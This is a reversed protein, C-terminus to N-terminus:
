RGTCQADGSRLRHPDAECTHEILTDGCLIENQEGDALERGRSARTIGDLKGPGRDLRQRYFGPEREAIHGGLEGGEGPQDSGILLYEVITRASAICRLSFNPM